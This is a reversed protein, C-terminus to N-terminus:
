IVSEHPSGEETAHELQEVETDIDEVKTMLQALIADLKQIIEFQRQNREENQRNLVNQGVLTIGIFLWQGINLIFLLVPFWPPQDFHWSRPAWVNWGMWGLFIVLSLWTFAMSGLNKTLWVAIRENLSRSTM